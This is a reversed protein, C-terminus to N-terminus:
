LYDAFIPRCRLFVRRGVIVLVAAVLASFLPGGLGGAETGLIAARYLRVLPTLPNWEILQRLNPPVMTEPYVIPTLFFWVSLVPGAAHTVDRVFVQACALLLGLGFTLALQILAAVALLPLGAARAPEVALVFGVTFVVLGIGHLFASSLVGSAVFLESPFKLHKVVSANDIVASVSRMLGEQFAMWPWLAVLLYASFSHGGVQGVRYVYDFVFTYLALLVLPQLLSLLLGMKTGAFRQTVDRVVMLRLQFLRSRATAWRASQRRAHAGDVARAPTGIAGMGM